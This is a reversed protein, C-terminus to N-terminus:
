CSPGLQATGVRSPSAHYVLSGAVLWHIPLYIWTRIYARYTGISERMTSGFVGTISYIVHHFRCRWSACSLLSRHRPLLIVLAIGSQQGRRTDDLRSRTLCLTIPTGRRRDTVRMTPRPRSHRRNLSRPRLPSPLAPPLLRSLGSLRRSWWRPSTSSFSRSM